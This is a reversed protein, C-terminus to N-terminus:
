ECYMTLVITKTKRNFSYNYPKNRHKKIIDELILNNISELDLIPITKKGLIKKINNKAKVLVSFDTLTLQLTENEFNDLQALFAKLQLNSAKLYLRHSPKSFKQYANADPIKGWETFKNVQKRSTQETNLMYAHNVRELQSHFPHTSSKSRYAKPHWQHKLLIEKDYFYVPLGENKMRIHIDTDEAGWGHYFEDYGNLQKLVRTPFLTTGTVENTGKFEVIYDEFKKNLLSENQSIFGYQFYHVENPKALSTAINVFEPHFLLDIDGVLFYPTECTKLAINIARCKNWLQGSVKCSIFNIKSHEALVEQLENVYVEDSGYDVLICNFDQNIQNEISNLCNKVICLDRNRNTLVLTITKHTKLNEM